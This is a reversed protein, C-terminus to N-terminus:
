RIYSYNQVGYQVEYPFDLSLLLSPLGETTTDNRAHNAVCWHGCEFLLLIGGANAEKM